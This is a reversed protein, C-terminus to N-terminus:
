QLRHLGTSRLRQVVRPTVTSGNTGLGLRLGLGTGYALLEFIDRRSLPEGGSVAVDFVGMGALQDFLGKAEDTTLEGPRRKTAATSCHVCRANCAATALWVMHFPARPCFPAPAAGPARTSDAQCPTATM